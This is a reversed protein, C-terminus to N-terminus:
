SREGVLFTFRRRAFHVLFVVLCIFFLWDFPQEVLFAGRMIGALVPASVVGVLRNLIFTCILPWWFMFLLLWATRKAHRRVPEPTDLGRSLDWLLPALWIGFILRYWFNMAVFFCGTLLVAGLIFHLWHSQQAVSPEWDGLKRRFWGDLAIVGGLAACFAKPAWGMHGFEVFVGAAGFSMLARPRPAVPGFLALDGAVSCSAVALLLLTLFFRLRVEKRNAGALLVLSAAAPYYKLLAAATILIPAVWRIWRRESLLSPVVPTLLLFIVLDNNCRDVALLVPSSCLIAAYWALQGPTRARLRWWAVVLFAGTVVLGVWLIDARTLGLDRLHLWWHPYVHPRNFYDLPNPAYPNLGRTVADNSALLAFADLFWVGFHNLGLILFLRPYVVFSGFFAAMIVGLWLWGKRESWGGVSVAPVPSMQDPAVNM